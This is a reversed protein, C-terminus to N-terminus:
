VTTALYRQSPRSCSELFLTGVNTSFLLGGLKFKAGLKEARCGCTLGYLNTRRNERTKM